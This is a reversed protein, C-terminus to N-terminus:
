TIEKPILPKEMKSYGSKGKDANTYALYTLELLEQDTPDEPLGLKKMSERVCKILDQQIQNDYPDKSLKAVIEKAEEIYM